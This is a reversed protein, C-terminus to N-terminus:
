YYILYLSARINWQEAICKLLFIQTHTHTHTWKALMNLTYYFTEKKIKLVVKVKWCNELFISDPLPIKETGVNKM